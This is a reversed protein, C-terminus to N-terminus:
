PSARDTDRRQRNGKRSEGTPPKIGPEDVEDVDLTPVTALEVTASGFAALLVTARGLEDEVASAAGTMPAEEDSADLVSTGASGVTEAVDAVADGTTVDSVSVTMPAEATLTAEDVVLVVWFSLFGQTLRNDSLEAAAAAAAVLLAVVVGTALGTATGLLV